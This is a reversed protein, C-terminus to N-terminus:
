DADGSTISSTTATYAHVRPDAANLQMGRIVRRDGDKVITHSRQALVGSSRVAGFLERKSAGTREPWGGQKIWRDLPDNFVLQPSRDHFWPVLEQWLEPPLLPRDDETRDVDPPYAQWPTAQTDLRILGNAETQALLHRFSPFGHDEENFGALHKTIRLKIRPASAPEGEDILERVADAVLQPLENEFESTPTDATLGVLQEYAIFEDCLYTLRPDCSVAAATVITHAGLSRAREMAPLLDGDGGVLVVTRAEDQRAALEVLDIAIRLDVANKVAAGQKRSRVLVAEIGQDALVDVDQQWVADRWDAYARAEVLRGFRRAVKRLALPDVVAEYEERLSIALNEWDILMVVDDPTM